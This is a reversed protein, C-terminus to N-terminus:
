LVFCIFRFCCVWSYQISRVCIYWSYESRLCTSNFSHSLQKKNENRRHVIYLRYHFHATDSQNSIINSCSDAPRLCDHLHAPRIRQPRVSLTKCQLYEAVHAVLCPEMANPWRFTDDQISRLLHLCYIIFVHRVFVEKWCSVKPKAPEFQKFTTSCVIPPVVALYSWQDPDQGVHISKTAFGKPQERFGSM